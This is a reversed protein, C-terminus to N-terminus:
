LKGEQEVTFPWGHLADHPDFRCAIRREAIALRRLQLQDIPHLAKAAQGGDVLTRLLNTGAGGIDLFEGALTRVLQEPLVPGAGKAGALQDIQEVGPGRGPLLQRMNLAGFQVPARHQHRRMRDLVPRQDLDLVMALLRLLEIEGIPDAVQLRQGPGIRGFGGGAQQHVRDGAQGAEIAHHQIFEQRLPMPLDDGLAQVGSHLSVEAQAKRCGIQGGIDAAQVHDVPLPDDGIHLRLGDREEHARVALRDIQRKRLQARYVRNVDLIELVEADFGREADRDHHRAPEPAEHDAMVQGRLRNRQLSPLQALLHRARGGHVHRVHLCQPDLPPARFQAFTQRLHETYQPRLACVLARDDGLERLDALHVPRLSDQRMQIIPVEM